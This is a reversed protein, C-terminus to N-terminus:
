AAVERAPVRKEKRRARRWVWVVLIWLVLQGATAARRGLPTRYSLSGEGARGVSFQNAWGYATTRATVVGDVKLQWGPDATSAVLLDGAAPVLGSAGSDGVEHPLATRAGRLDEGIADTYSSPDTDRPPLVARSPVWATNRYVLLGEIVPVQELDLQQALRDTLAAPPRRQGTVSTSSPSLRSQIVIYRVGMPGLLRGLRSTKGDQALHLADAMLHTAGPPPGGFRDLVTPVGRDTSTYAVQDDYRWGAAPLLEPDGVWVVRYPARGRTTLLDDLSARFDEAPMQWRGEILGSGLPLAGLLVGLAAFVSLLQRWGFRYARLDTEFASLGLAAALALAAAVPALVVEAAPLGVPLKGEQSAWLVAWGALVIVWARVAWELRWSRGIIVPLAGALLFAWGLPPAGWPGSQFRLIRGLTLPGGNTSGLGTLAEWPSPARLLDLSWPVHLLIAVALAGITVTLLRLSGAVRFCLLSGAVMALALVLVVVLVFPTLAAVLALMLGLSLTLGVVSRAPRRAAPEADDAGTPGFPAAGSARGLALLLWPSVAYLLLGSWSGRALANYPVPIALYVAFATVSARASGIPKALRWAGLAGLPITGLILVARLLGMAGFFVYGLVALIAFGTPPASGGGLGARRWGSWWAEALSGPSGPFRSLEGVVPIHGFLLGRSGILLLVGLIIALTGTFQRSGERMAGVFDRSSRAVSTVRDDRAGIQGRFFASVRASGRVQLERVEGDAVRRIKGLAKRRRRVDPLRRLNWPLAALVDRAQDPHGALVAYVAEALLFLLAQPLVRLRHWWGYCVLSTRLRHRALRRRRDDLPMRSALAELHRVRASPGILVRAGVVHARWCLDVDDGLGVIASDFGGLEAFLDARVVTCAGPVVFVDRVADHQEQDLEHPESIAALAGTKDVSMGVQLLRRPDDWEVLKPGIIGANSRFAEEVLSRVTDPEMAIDDHCLVYFAAGEVLEAVLNAAAGFGPDHDLRHVHADPLVAAVRPTPDDASATDIVLVSLDPYTQDRFGALTEEFWPGPDHTVVVAVVPPVTAPGGADPKPPATTRASSPDM